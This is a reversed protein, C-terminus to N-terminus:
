HGFGIGHANPFRFGFYAFGGGSTATVFPGGVLSLFRLALTSKLVQVSLPNGDGSTVDSRLGACLSRLRDAPVSIGIVADM